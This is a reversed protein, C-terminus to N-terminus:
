VMDRKRKLLNKELIVGQKEGDKAPRVHEYDYSDHAPFFKSADVYAEFKTFAIVKVTAM